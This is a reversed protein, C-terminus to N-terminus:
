SVLDTIPPMGGDGDFIVQAQAQLGTIGLTAHGTVVIQCEDWLTIVGGTATTANIGYALGGTSNLAAPTISSPVQTLTVGATAAAAPTLWAGAAVGAMAAKRVNIVISAPANANTALLLFVVSRAGRMPVTPSTWVVTTALTAAVRLLPYEAVRM